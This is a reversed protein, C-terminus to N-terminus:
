EISSEPYCNHPPHWRVHKPAANSIDTLLVQGRHKEARQSHLQNQIEQTYSISSPCIVTGQSNKKKKKWSNLPSTAMRPYLSISYHCHCAIRHQKQNKWKLNWYLTCMTWQITSTTQRKKMLRKAIFTMLCVEQLPKDNSIHPSPSPKLNTWSYSPWYAQFAKVWPYAKKKASVLDKFSISGRCSAKLNKKLSQDTSTGPKHILSSIQTKLTQIM